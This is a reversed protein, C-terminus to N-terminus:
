AIATTTPAPLPTTTTTCATAAKKESVEAPSLEHFYKCFPYSMGVNNILVAVAKGALAAKVKAQAAANFDSFDM